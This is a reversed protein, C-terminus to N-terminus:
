KLRAGMLISQSTRAVRASLLFCFTENATRCLSSLSQSSSVEIVKGRFITRDIVKRAVKQGIESPENVNSVEEGDNLLDSSTIEASGSGEAENDANCIEIRVIRPRALKQTSVSSIINPEDQRPLTATLLKNLVPV